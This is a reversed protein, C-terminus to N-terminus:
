VKYTDCKEILNNDNYKFEASTTAPLQTIRFKRIITDLIGVSSCYYLIYQM